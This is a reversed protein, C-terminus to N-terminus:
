DLLHTKGIGPESAVLVVRLRGIASEEFQSWLSAFQQQRASLRVERHTTEQKM